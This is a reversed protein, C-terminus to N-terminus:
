TPGAWHDWTKTKNNKINKALFKNQESPAPLPVTKWSNENNIAKDSGRLSAKSITLRRGELIFNEMELIAQSASYEDDFTIFAFGKPKGTNRDERINVGVV